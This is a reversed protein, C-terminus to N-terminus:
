ISPIKKNQTIPKYYWVQISKKKVSIFIIYYQIMMLNITYEKGKGFLAVKQFSKLLKNNKCNKFVERELFTSDNPKLM